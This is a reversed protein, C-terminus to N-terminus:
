NFYKDIGNAIGTVLKNQYEPNAMNLDEVQNTMYGMEVITVPVQSWNIGSMTDTEWVKERKAGTSAVMADLISTSLSKSACYIDACYPNSSTPCITMIGNVSPNDVGNCHIRVFAGAQANNAIMARESNSINVENTERTMIVTYGRRILEDRLKLSVDLNIQYEPIGSFKGSTGSSVKAKMESAGPAVPEKENNGKLQHGPDICVIKGSATIPTQCTESPQSQESDDADAVEGADTKELGADNLEEEEGNQNEDNAAEAENLETDKAAEASADEDVAIQISPLGSQLSENEDNKEVVIAPASAVAGAVDTQETKEDKCGAFLLSMILVIITASTKKM